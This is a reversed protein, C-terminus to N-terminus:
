KMLHNNLYIIEIKQSNLSSIGFLFVEHTSPLSTEASQRLLNMWKDSSPGSNGRVVLCVKNAGPVRVRFRVAGGSGGSAALRKAGIFPSSSTRRHLRMLDADIPEYLFCQEERWKAYRIQYLLHKNTM